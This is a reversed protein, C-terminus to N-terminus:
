ELCNQRTLDMQRYKGDKYVCVFTIVEDSNSKKQAAEKFSGMHGFFSKGYPFNPQPVKQEKQKTSM